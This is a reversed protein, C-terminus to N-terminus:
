SNYSNEVPPKRELLPHNKEQKGPLECRDPLDATIEADREESRRLLHEGVAETGQPSNRGIEKEKHAFMDCRIRSGIIDSTKLVIAVQQFIPGPEHRLLKAPLRDHLQQPDKEPVAVNKIDGFRIRVAVFELICALLLESIPEQVHDKLIVGRILIHGVIGLFQANGRFVQGRQDPTDASMRGAVPDDAIHEDLDFRQQTFRRHVQFQDGRPEPERVLRGQATEKAMVGSHSRGLVTFFDKESRARYEGPNRGRKPLFHEPKVIEHCYNVPYNNM